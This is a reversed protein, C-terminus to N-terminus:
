YEKVFRVLEGAKEIDLFEKKTLCPMKKPKNKKFIVLNDADLIESLKLVEKNVKDGIETLIIEEQKKAIIDFPVKKTDKADFGLDNYKKSIDTQKEPTYAEQISAFVDLPKFVDGGFVDFLKLAKSIIIKSEDNEYKTITKSSVGISRALSHISIGQEEREKKLKEGNVSAVLGSHDSSVFPLKNELASKFTALNLCNVSHRTYLVNDQLKNGAKEAIIIAAGGLLSSTSRLYECYENSASNADELVKILLITKSKRACLDFCSQKLHKVTFGQKLLLMSSQEIIISKM